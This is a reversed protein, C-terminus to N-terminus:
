AESGNLFELLGHAILDAINFINNLIMERDQINTLYGVEVLISPTRLDNLVTLRKGLHRIDSKIGRHKDWLDSRQFLHNIAIALPKDYEDRYYIETGHFLTREDVITDPNDVIANCHVSVFADPNLDTIAIYRGTRTVTTDGTRTFCIEINPNLKEIIKAMALVTQLNLDKEDIGGAQAGPDRGGHGADLLIRKM